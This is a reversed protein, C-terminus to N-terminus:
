SRAQLELDDEDVDSMKGAVDTELIVGLEQPSRLRGEQSPPTTRDHSAYELSASM